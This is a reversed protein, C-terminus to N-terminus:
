ILLDLAMIARKNVKDVVQLLAHCGCATSKNCDISATTIVYKKERWLVNKGSVQLLFIALARTVPM